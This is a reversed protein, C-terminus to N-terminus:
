AVPRPNVKLDQKNSLELLAAEVIEKHRETMVYNFLAGAMGSAKTVSYNQLHLYGDPLARPKGQAHRM